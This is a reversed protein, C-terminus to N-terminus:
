RSPRPNCSPNLISTSPSVSIWHVLSMRLKGVEGEGGGGGGLGLEESPSVGEEERGEGVKDETSEEDDAEDAEDAEGDEEGLM